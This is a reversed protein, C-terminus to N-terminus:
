NKSTDSIVQRISDLFNRLLTEQEQRTDKNLEQQEIPHTERTERKTDREDAKYQLWIILATFFITIIINIKTLNNTKVVSQNLGHQQENLLAQEIINVGNETIRAKIPKSYLNLLEYGDSVKELSGWKTYDNNEVEINNLHVHHRLVERLYLTFDEIEGSGGYNEKLKEFVTDLPHFRYDEKIFFQYLHKLIPRDM